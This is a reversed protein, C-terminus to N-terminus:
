YEYIIQVSSPAGIGVAVSPVPENKVRTEPVGHVTDKATGDQKRDTSNRMIQELFIADHDDTTIPIVRAAM